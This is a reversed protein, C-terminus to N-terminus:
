HSHKKELTLLKWSILWFEDMAEPTIRGVSMRVFWCVFRRLFM